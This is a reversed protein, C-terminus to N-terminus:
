WKWQRKRICTSKFTM